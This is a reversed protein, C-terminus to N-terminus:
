QKPLTQEVGRCVRCQIDCRSLNCESEDDCYFSKMVSCLALQKQLAINVTNAKQIEIELFKIQLELQEIEKNLGAM